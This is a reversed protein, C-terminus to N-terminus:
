NLPPIRKKEVASVLINFISLSCTAVKLKLLMANLFHEECGHFVGGRVQEFLKTMIITSFNLKSDIQQKLAQM